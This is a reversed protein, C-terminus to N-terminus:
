DRGGHGGGRREGRGGRGHAHRRAVGGGVGGGERTVGGEGSEEKGDEEDPDDRDEVHGPPFAVQLPEDVLADRGM